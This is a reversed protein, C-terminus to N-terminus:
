MDSNLLGPNDHINGIVELDKEELDYHLFDYYDDPWAIVYHRPRYGDHTEVIDGEYIEVGNKDNWGTYQEIEVENHRELSIGRLFEGLLITEGMLCFGGQTKYDHLWKGDFWARFKLDRSM